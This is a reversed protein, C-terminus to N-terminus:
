QETAIQMWLWRPVALSCVPITGDPSSESFTSVIGILRGADDVVPGGSTGSRIPAKTHLWISHGPQMGPPRHREVHGLIWEGTHALVHVAMPEGFEPIRDNIPVPETMQQWENFAEWDDSMEQSDPEALAALDSVPDGAVVRAHFSTGSRTEVPEIYHDSWLVPAGDGEWPVCHYATLIHAAPVLVGQGGVRPLHVTAAEVRKKHDSTM